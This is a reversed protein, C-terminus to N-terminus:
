FRRGRFFMMKARKGGRTQRIESVLINERRLKQRAEKATDADVIGKKTEGGPAFAKYEFIPM